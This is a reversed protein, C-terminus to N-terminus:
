FPCEDEDYHGYYQPRPPPCDLALTAQEAQVNQVDRVDRVDQVDRVDRVDQVFRVPTFAGEHENTRESVDQTEPKTPLSARSRVFNDDVELIGRNILRNIRMRATDSNLNLINM